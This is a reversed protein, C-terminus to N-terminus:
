KVRVSIIKDGKQIKKVVDMGKVVKGFVTYPGNPPGDLDPTPALTIYFQSGASNPDQKRAMALVGEDHKLKESVERRITYGPGGSGDGNQDGGQIVFGPEVRHFNLGDYYNAAALKVFNAVTLPTEKGYLEVEIAGKATKITAHRTGAKKAADVDAQTPPPYSKKGPSVAETQTLPAQAEDPAKSSSTKTIKAPADAKSDTESVKTPANGNPFMENGGGSAANQQQKCSAIVLLGAFALLMIVVTYLSLKRM